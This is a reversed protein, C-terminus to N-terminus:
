KKAKGCVVSYQQFNYKRFLRLCPADSYIEGCRKQAYKLEQRDYDNWPFKSTNQMIPLVCTLALLLPIV